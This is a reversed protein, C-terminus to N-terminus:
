EFQKVPSYNGPINDLNFGQVRYWNSHQIKNSIFPASNDTACLQCIVSWPGSSSTSSEISYNAAGVAGRWAISGIAINTVLPVDPITHAPVPKGAITYAHKRLLIENVAEAPIDGPPFHLTNGDNHQEWGHTDLHPFLSWYTDGAATSSEIASLFQVLNAGKWAFEGIFYVKSAISCLNADQSVRSPQMPYYHNSYMDVSAFQLADQNVGYTGDLVLQEPAISKIYDAIEKTWAAPPKIENGTEWAMITPDDKLAIGSYSNVHELLEKIYAKFDSIVQPNTYFQNEDSIGRWDTFFHKGGHYYRYNDTLPIIFRLGLKSGYAVAFDGIHLASHNFQNLVPEFSKPNGISIGLTHGRVVTGGMAVVTELADSVRFQTPYQIGDVNEDLGLWYINGGAFRFRDNGIFLQDGKRSVFQSHISAVLLIVIFCIVLRHLLM